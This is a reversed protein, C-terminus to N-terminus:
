LVQHITRCGKNAWPEPPDKGREHVSRLAFGGLLFSMIIIERFFPIRTLLLKTMGDEHCNMCLSEIEDVVKTDEEGMDQSASAVKAGMDEFLDKASRLQSNAM